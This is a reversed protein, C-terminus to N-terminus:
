RGQDAPQLQINVHRTDPGCEASNVELGSLTREPQGPTQIRVQYVGPPGFAVLQPAGDAAQVTHRLSDTLTGVTYWGRTEHAVSLGASDFVNVVLSPQLSHPCVVSVAVDDCGALALCLAPALLTSTKMPLPLVHTL